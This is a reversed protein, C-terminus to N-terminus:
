PSFPPIKESWSVMRTGANNRASKVTGDYDVSAKAMGDASSLILSDQEGKSKIANAIAKPTGAEAKGM